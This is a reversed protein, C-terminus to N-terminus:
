LYEVECAAIRAPDAISDIAIIQDGEVEMLVVVKLQGGLIVALGLQGDILALKAATAKGKFNTAVAQAGHMEALSGLRVADADAHFVVEPDLVALLGSFDGDRSAALFAAVVNKRRDYDASPTEPLGQVRRRARSALQRAAVPSRDVIRGIEEFPVDFMDHLVFALREVPALRELVVLLALGVSDALAAQEDAGAAPDAHQVEGEDGDIPDERRKTRARLMDLCIRGVVTTLWGAPNEIGDGARELRLWAEQVADEAEAHSGLMRFAVTRLRGREAEFRETWFKKESM